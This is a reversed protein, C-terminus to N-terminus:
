QEQVPHPNDAYFADFIFKNKIMAVDKLEDNDKQCIKYFWHLVARALTATEDLEMSKWAELQTKKWDDMFPLASQKRRSHKEFWNLLLFKQQEKCLIQVVTYDSNNVHDECDSNWLPWQKFLMNKQLSHSGNDNDHYALTPKIDTSTFVQGIYNLNSGAPGLFGYKM